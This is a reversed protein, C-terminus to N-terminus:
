LACINMSFRIRALNSIYGIVVKAANLSNGRRQWDRWSGIRTAASVSCLVRGDANMIYDHTQLFDEILKWRTAAKDMKGDSMEDSTKIAEILLAQIASLIFEVFVTSAGADNADNIAEYYEPQRDHIM